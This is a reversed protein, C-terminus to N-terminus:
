HVICLEYHVILSRKPIFPISCYQMFSANPRFVITLM